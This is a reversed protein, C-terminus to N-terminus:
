DKIICPSIKKEVMPEREATKLMNVKGYVDSKNAMPNPIYVYHAQSDAKQLFRTILNAKSPLPTGTLLAGIFERSIDCGHRELYRQLERRVIGWLQQEIVGKGCAIHFIAQCLNNVLLCYVVRRWAIHPEHRTSALAKQSMSPLQEPRWRSSDLKTGELDRLVIGTVEGASVKVLVNQLHPEFAVGYKFYAYLVPPLLQTVYGKFWQLSAQKLSLAPQYESYEEILAAVNARGDLSDHLGFSFLTGVLLVRSENLVQVPISDRLIIGFHSQMALRQEECLQLLDVTFALPELLVYFQPFLNKLDSAITEILRSIVVATELEYYSNKRVSNTIRLSLSTKIFYPFNETYLTRVSSTPSFALGRPGLYNLRGATMAAQVASMNQVYAAQWPHCPVLQWGMPCDALDVECQSHFLASLDEAPTSYARLLEPPVAFFHLQFRNLFEPSYRVLECSNFGERSKPAPQFTHGFVLGAESPMFGSLVNYGNVGIVDRVPSHFSLIRALLERSQHIQTLLEFQPPQGFRGCLENILVEPLEQWALHTYHLRNKQARTQITDVKIIRSLFRFNFTTSPKDVVVLLRMSSVPLEIAMIMGQHEFFSRAFLGEITDNEVLPALTLLANPGAIERCYCNLLFHGSYQTSLIDHQLYGEENPRM